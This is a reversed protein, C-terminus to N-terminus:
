HARLATEVAATVEDLTGWTGRLEQRLSDSATTVHLFHWHPFKTKIIWAHFNRHNMELQKSVSDRTVTATTSM